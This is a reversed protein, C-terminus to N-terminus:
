WNCQSHSTFTPEESTRLSATEACIARYSLQM